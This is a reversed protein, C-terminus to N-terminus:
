GTLIVIDPENDMVDYDINFRISVTYIDQEGENSRDFFARAYRRDRGLPELFLVARKVELSIDDREAPTRGICHVVVGLTHQEREPETILSEALRESVEDEPEVAVAPIQALARAYTPDEFVNDGTTDLGSVAAIVEELIRRHADPM